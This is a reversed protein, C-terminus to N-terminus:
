FKGGGVNRSGGGHGGSSSSPKPKVRRDLTRYLFLDGARTLHMSGPRTYERAGSRSRVSKLQSRMIGTAILAAAIGIVLSIVLNMGFDFPFGNIEGDIEYACRDAFRHFAGAYDGDTLYPAIDDGMDYIEDTTIAQAAFGNSLIRYDREWMAVLLLVGDRSQGFGYGNDDYFAEVYWDAGYGETSEVTAIVFDVQYQVSLQDLKQSLEREESSTLLDAGDYLRPAEAALVPVALTICLVLAFLISLVKKMM